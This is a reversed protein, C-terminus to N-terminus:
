GRLNKSYKREMLFTVGLVGVIGMTLVYVASVLKEYHMSLLTSNVFHQLLYVEEPPYDHWILYVERFIKFANVFSMIFTLFFAPILYVRTIKWFQQWGNAGFVAACQYYEEPIGQLGTLFLIANYGLNKWVYILIIMWFAYQTKDEYIWKTWFDVVAASPVVLPVLFFVTLINGAMAFKRSLRQLALALLLSCLIGIPIASLMFLCTNSLGQLFFENSFLNSFNKLGVFDKQIPNKTFAYIASVVFPIFYFFAVGSVSVLFGTLPFANKQVYRKKNM